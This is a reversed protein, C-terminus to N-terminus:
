RLRSAKEALERQASKTADVAAQHGRLASAYDEKSVLGQTFYKKLSELSDDFGLNAAIIWHKVATKPRGNKGEYVGLNHRAHPNGGIAAEEWLYVAKKEDKEVGEGLQYMVSINFHAMNDGLAAAKSYYEFAGGYDGENYRKVGMHRLAAPDNTKVRKMRIQEMEEVTGPLLERCFPCKPRTREQFERVQNAYCCGKCILKSCCAYQKSKSVDIPLPLCCIPCDGLYCEDPQKFLDDDRLEALREKCARKHLPRHNKQCDVSCYRVLLCACKKLKVDDVEAKGCSGCCLATNTTAALENMIGGGVAQLDGSAIVTV